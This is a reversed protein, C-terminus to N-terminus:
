DLAAPPGLAHRERDARLRAVDLRRDGGPAAALVRVGRDRDRPPADGSRVLALQAQEGAHEEVVRIEGLAGREGRGLGERGATREDLDRHAEGRLARAVELREGGLERVLRARLEEVDRDVLRDVAAALRRLLREGRELAPQVLALLALPLVLEGLAHAAAVGVRDRDQFLLLAGALLGRCAPALVLRGLERCSGGPALVGAFSVGRGRPAGGIAGVAGCMVSAGAGGTASSGSSLRRSSDAPGGARRRPISGARRATRGRRPPATSRS